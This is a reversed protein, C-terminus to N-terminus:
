TQGSCTSDLTQYWMMSYQGGGFTSTTVTARAHGDGQWYQYSGYYSPVEAYECQSSAGGPVLPPAQGASGSWFSSSYILQSPDCSQSQFFMDFWFFSSDLPM